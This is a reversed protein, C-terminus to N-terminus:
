KASDVARRRGRVTILLYLWIIPGVTYHIWRHKVVGYLGQADRTYSAHVILCHYAADGVLVWLIAIVGWYVYEPVLM